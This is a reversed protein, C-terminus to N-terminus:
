IRYGIDMIWIWILDIRYRIDEIWLGYDWLEPAM